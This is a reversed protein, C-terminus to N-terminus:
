DSYQRWVVLLTECVAVLIAFAVVPVRLGALWALVAAGTFVILEAIIRWPLDLKQESGPAILVAWVVIIVAPAIVAAVWRLVPHPLLAFAGYAYGAIAALELAFKLALNISVATEM